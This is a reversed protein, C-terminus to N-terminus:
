IISFRKATSQQTPIWVGVMVKSIVFLRSKALNAVDTDAYRFTIADRTFTTRSEETSM